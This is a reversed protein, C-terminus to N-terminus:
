RKIAEAMRPYIKRKKVIELGLKRKFEYFVSNPFVGREGSKEKFLKKLQTPYIGEEPILDVMYLVSLDIREEPTKGHEAYYHMENYDWKISWVDFPNVIAGKSPFIYIERKERKRKTEMVYPIDFRIRGVAQVMEEDTFIQRWTDTDWSSLNAFCGLQFEPINPQCALVVTDATQYFDNRSRLYYYYGFILNKAKCRGRIHPKLSKTCCVLVNHKKRAAVLDIIDCLRDGTNRMKFITPELWSALPYEGSNLQYMNNYEYPIHFLSSKKDIISEWIGVNATGDLGIVKFPLNHLVTEEFCMFYYHKRTYGSAERKVIMNEIKKRSANKQIRDFWMLYERPIEEPEMERSLVRDIIAIQYEEYLVRFDVASFLRYLRNYDLTRDSLFELILFELFENCREVEDSELGLTIILNRLISLNEANAKENIFLVGIPNEDIILADFHQYNSIEEPDLTYLFDGLFETIHHHVGAWNQPHNFLQRKAEYYPCDTDKKECTNECIPRINIYKEALRRWQPVTCSKARSKMHIYNFPKHRHPSMELNEVINKHFPALYIWYKEAFDNVTNLTNTTKGSGTPLKLLLFENPGKLFAIVRAVM